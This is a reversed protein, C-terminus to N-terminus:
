KAGGCTEHRHTEDAMRVIRQGEHIALNCGACHGPFRAPFPHSVADVTPMPENPREPPKGTLCDICAVAIDGHACLDAPM